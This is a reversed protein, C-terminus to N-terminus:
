LDTVAELLSPGFEAAQWRRVEHASTEANVGDPDWALRKLSAMPWVLSPDIKLEEGHGKRWAKLVEMRQKEAAAMRPRRPSPPREYPSAQMGAALAGRLEELLPKRGFPGLGDVKRLNAEPESALAILTENAIVRFHPRRRRLAHRERMAVLEGLIALGRGDLAYSGKVSLFATEPDPAEYRVVSQRECEETMWSLRGLGALRACMVERLEHLYAVDSALASSPLRNESLESDRNM